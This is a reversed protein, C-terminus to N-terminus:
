SLPSCAHLFCSLVVCSFFLDGNEPAMKQFLLRDGLETVLQPELWRHEVAPLFLEKLVPAGGELSFAASVVVGFLFPDLVQLLPDLALVLDQGLQHRLM